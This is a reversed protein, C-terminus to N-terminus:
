KGICFKGFITGLIDKDVEVQGTIQGINFLADRIFPALMDGSLDAQLGETVKEIASLANVLAEYHRTNSITIGAGSKTQQTVTELLQEKIAAINTKNKASIGIFVTDAANKMNKIKSRWEEIAEDTVLDTKNGVLILKMGPKYYEEIDQELMHIDTHVADFVFLLVSAADISTKTREIGIKEIEDTAHKRLGATDILRFHIGGLNLVEEITDRTTGAINSVIARDEDLLTNLLTSKGANPRGAIVTIIGNKIANGYYFSDKLQQLNKTIQELLNNLEKRDAFTVDEQSFDLELEILAAFNVLQERLYQLNQHIGGRLQTLAMKHQAENEVAIMDAVAEASSLDLKGNLFARQTFEGPRAIRAGNKICLQMIQEQIYPSGHSSIEVVNEGTYSKPAKYLSVVVEDIFEDGEKLFGVHLTHSPQVGLNKKPFIRNVIDIANKGSIRVVGIAGVGPATAPAVITDDWVSIKNM